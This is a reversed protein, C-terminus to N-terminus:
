AVCLGHFDAILYRDFHRSFERFTTAKDCTAFKLQRQNKTGMFGVTIRVFDRQQNVVTSCRKLAVALLAKEGKLCVVQPRQLHLNQLQEKILLLAAENNHPKMAFLQCASWRLEM